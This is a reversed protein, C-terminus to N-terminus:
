APSRSGFDPSASHAKLKSIGQCFILFTLYAQTFAPRGETPTETGNATNNWPVGHLRNKIPSGARLSGFNAAAPFGRSPLFDDPNEEQM